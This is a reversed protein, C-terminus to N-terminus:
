RCSYEEVDLLYEGARTALELPQQRLELCVKREVDLLSDFFSMRKHMDVIYDGVYLTSVSIRVPSDRRCCGYVLRTRRRFAKHERGMFAALMGPMVPAVAKVVTVFDSNANYVHLKGDEWNLSYADVGAFQVIHPLRDIDHEIEYDEAFERYLSGVPGVIDDETKVGANVTRLRPNLFMRFPLENTNEHYWDRWRGLGFFYSM